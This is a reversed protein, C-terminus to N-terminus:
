ISVANRTDVEPVSYAIKITGHRSASRSIQQSLKNIAKPLNLGVSRVGCKCLKTIYEVDMSLTIAKHRLAVLVNNFTANCRKRKRGGGSSIHWLRRQSTTQGVKICNSKERCDDWGSTNKKFYERKYPQSRCAKNHASFQKSPEHAVRYKM